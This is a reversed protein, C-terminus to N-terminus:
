IGVEVDRQGAVQNQQHAIADVDDLVQEQFVQRAILVVLEGKGAEGEFHAAGGARGHARHRNHSALSHRDRSWSNGRTGPTSPTNSPLSTARCTTTIAPLRMPPFSRRSRRKAGSPLM